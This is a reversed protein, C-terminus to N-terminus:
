GSENCAAPLANGAPKSGHASERRQGRFDEFRSSLISCRSALVANAGDVTCHTGAQMLDVAALTKRGAEVVGSGVCLRAERVEPFRMRERDTEFYAVCKAAEESSRETARLAQLLAHSSGISVEKCRAEPLEEIREQQWSLREKAADWLRRWNGSRGSKADYVGSLSDTRSTGPPAPPM